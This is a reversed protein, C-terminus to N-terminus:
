LSLTSINRTHQHVKVMIRKLVHANEKSKYGYHLSYM